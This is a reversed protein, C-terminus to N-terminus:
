AQIFGMPSQFAKTLIDAQNGESPVQQIMIVGHEQMIRIFVDRIEIHKVRRTLGNSNMIAVVTSNNINIFITRTVRIASGLHHLWIAEHTTDSAAVLESEASSHVPTRQKRCTWHM